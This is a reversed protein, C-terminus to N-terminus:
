PGAGTLARDAPVRGFPLLLNRAAAAVAAVGRVGRMLDIEGRQQHRIAHALLRVRPDGAQSLAEDAMQVAGAHHRSMVAVFRADFDRGSARRLGEVEGPSAMGPMAEREQPPCLPSDAPFWSDWWQMMVAIEGNQGAVMLRALARLRPDEAHEAALGALEAGQAHHETMRRLTSQDSAAAGGLHPVEWGLWGLLALIGLASAGAAALGAWLAAFGRHASPVRGAVRDRLWPFLPYLSASTLHVLFGIWYPQELTFLPQRFPLLPVLVFWELASTLLAWPGCLVLLTAPSLGATWRGLLGFFVLAWSLDAWQHFLIGAAVVPWTPETQLAADRLPIAAVVMWDVMADRGIRAATFQSVLTSFTSSLLGLLAAARWATAPGFPRIPM